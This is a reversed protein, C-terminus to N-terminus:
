VKIKKLFEYTLPADEKKLGKKAKKVEDIDDIDHMEDLLVFTLHQEKLQDIQQQLLNDSGYSMGKFINYPKNMGILYYGGDSAPGLVVDYSNLAKFALTISEPSIHPVDCGIIAVKEYDDLLDEFTLFLNEALNRGRQVYLIASPFMERYQEKHQRGIFSLYLDYDRNLNKTIVDKVCAEVLQAATEMGIEKGITTKVEGPVPFKAFIVLANM